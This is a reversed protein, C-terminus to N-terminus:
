APDDTSALQRQDGDNSATPATVPDGFQPPRTRTLRLQRVRHRDVMLVEVLLAGTEFRDGDRPLRGLQKQVFGGLSDFDDDEDGIELGFADEADAVPLRGDALLVDDSVREFLAQETDYEDQIEGVIEELIDEITVLGATGGYEDAVIAIHVKSRRLERLLDAVPKSEPVIHAPRALEGLPPLVDEGVVFPLLDKAYLIGKIQDITDAYVPIRSHGAALIRTLLEKPAISLEVAVIDVRPVMIERVTTDPLDRVGAIMDREAAAAANARAETTAGSGDVDTATAPHEVPPRPRVRGIAAEVAMAVRALPRGVGALWGAFWPLADRRRFSWDAAVARPLALGLVLYAGTVGLVALVHEATGLEDRLVTTTLVAAVVLALAGVALLAPGVLRGDEPATGGRRGDQDHDDGHRSEGGRSMARVVAEGVGAIGLVGLAVLVLAIRLWSDLGM